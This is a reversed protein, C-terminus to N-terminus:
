RILFPVQLIEFLFPNRQKPTHCFATPKDFFVKRRAHRGWGRRTRGAASLFLFLGSKELRKPIFDM